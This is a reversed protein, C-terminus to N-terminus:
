LRIKNENIYRHSKGVKNEIIKSNHLYHHQIHAGANFFITSFDIEFKKLYSLHIRHLLLDFIIARYWKSNLSKFFYNILKFLTKGRFFYLFLFLIIIKNKISLKGESNDNVAESLTSYIM